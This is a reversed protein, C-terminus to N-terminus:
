TACLRNCSTRPPGRANGCFAAGIAFLRGYLGAYYNAAEVGARSFEPLGTKRAEASTEFSFLVSYWEYVIWAGPKAQLSTGYVKGGGKATIAAAVRAYEDWTWASAQTEGPM